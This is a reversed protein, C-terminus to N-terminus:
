LLRIKSKIEASHSLEALKEDIVNEVMTPTIFALENDPRGAREIYTLKGFMESIAPKLQDANDAQIRVYMANEVTKPEGAYSELEDMLEDKLQMLKHM